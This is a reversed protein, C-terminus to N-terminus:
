RLVVYVDFDDEDPYWDVDHVRYSEAHEDGERGLSITDDRRPVAPMTVDRTLGAGVPVHLRVKIM